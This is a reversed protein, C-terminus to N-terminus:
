IETYRRLAIPDRLLEWMRGTSFFWAILNGGLRLYNDDKIAKPERVPLQVEGLWTSNRSGLDMVMWKNNKKQPPIFAVHANSISAVPVVLDQSMARGLIIGAHSADTQLKRIPHIFSMGGEYLEYRAVQTENEREINASILLAKDWLKSRTYIIFPNPWKCEFGFRSSTMAESQFPEIHLPLVDRRFGPPNNKSSTKM